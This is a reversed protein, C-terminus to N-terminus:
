VIKKRQVGCMEGVARFFGGLGGERYKLSELRFSAVRLGVAVGRNKFVGRSAGRCSGPAGAM